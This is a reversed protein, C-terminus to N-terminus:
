LANGDDDVVTNRVTLRYSENGTTIAYCGDVMDDTVYGLESQNDLEKQDVEYSTEFFSWFKKPDGGLERMYDALGKLDVLTRNRRAVKKFVDKSLRKRLKDVDWVIKTPIVRAIKFLKDSIGGDEDEVTDVFEYNRDSDLTGSEFAGRMFSYFRAKRENFRKDAGKKEEQALWWASIEEEVEDKTYKGDPKKTM